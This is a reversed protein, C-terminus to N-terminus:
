PNKAQFDLFERMACRGSNVLANLHEQPPDFDLYGIGQTGIRCVLKKEKDAPAYQRLAERDWTDMLTDLLQSALRVVPMHEVLFTSETLDPLDPMKKRGDLMFGVPKVNEGELPGLEGDKASHKPELLYRIPFNSLLGGDVVQHGAIDQELYAGWSTKWKVEKWVFPIGMSMRIAEILPLKPSTRENLLLVRQDTIDAAILSLQQPRVKNIARHFDALTITPDFKKEALMDSMWTRFATDDCVAGGLVLSLSKGGWTTGNEANVGPVLKSIRRLTNDATTTLPKWLIEPIEAPRYAAELFSAFILKGDARASIREQMEKPSYGAAWATAFIAGASTGILRRTLHKAETLTALAGVFGVGKIGGGRFVVDFTQPM